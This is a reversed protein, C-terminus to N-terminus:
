CPDSNPFLLTQAFYWHGCIFYKYNKIKWEKIVM